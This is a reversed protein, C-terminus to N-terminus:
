CKQQNSGRGTAGNASPKKHRFNNQFFLSKLSHVTGTAIAKANTGADPIHRIKLSRFLAGMLRCSCDDLLTRVKAGLDNFSFPKGIMQVGADLRGHHVIANRVDRGVDALAVVRDALFIVGLDFTAPPAEDEILACSLM